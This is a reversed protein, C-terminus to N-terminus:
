KQNISFKVPILMKMRIAKGGSTGPKWSPMSKILRLAEEDCGYGIGKTITINTLSGDVEVFFSVKVTGEIKGLLAKEPYQINKLIFANMSDIGGPFSPIGEWNENDSVENAPERETKGTRKSEERNLNSKEYRTNSVVGANISALTSVDSTPASIISDSSITLFQESM